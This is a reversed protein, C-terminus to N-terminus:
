SNKKQMKPKNLHALSSTGEPPLWPLILLLDDKLKDKLM